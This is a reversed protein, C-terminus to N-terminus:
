VNVIMYMSTSYFQLTLNTQLVLSTQINQKFVEVFVTDNSEDVYIFEEVFGFQLPATLFFFSSQCILGSFICVPEINDYTM